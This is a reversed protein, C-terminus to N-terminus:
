KINKVFPRIRKDAIKYWLKQFDGTFVQPTMKLKEVCAIRVGRYLYNLWQSYNNIDEDYRIYIANSYKDKKTANDYGKLLGDTWERVVADLTNQDIKRGYKNWINAFYYGAGSSNSMGIIAEFLKSEM